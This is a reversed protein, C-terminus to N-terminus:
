EVLTEFEQWTMGQEHIDQWILGRLELEEWTVHWFLYQVLVHAPLINEIIQRMRDFEEPVGPVDPFRVAVIGPQTTEAVAANLGCGELTNNIASLTFSDGGIRALAALSRALQQADNTVPKQRFLAAVTDLGVGRATILCMEQQIQELRDQLEDLSRGMSDLEAGLFSGDLDYVGLPRLLEKLDQGNSM